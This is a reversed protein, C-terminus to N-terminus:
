CIPSSFCRRVDESRTLYGGTTENVPDGRNKEKKEAENDLVLIWRNHPATSSTWRCSTANVLTNSSDILPLVISLKHSCPIRDM